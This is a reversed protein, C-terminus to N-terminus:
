PRDPNRPSHSVGGLGAPPLDARSGAAGGTARRRRPKSFIPSAAGVRDLLPRVKAFGDDRGALHASPNSSM